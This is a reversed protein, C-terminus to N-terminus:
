KSSNQDINANNPGKPRKEIKFGYSEAKFLTLTMRTQM